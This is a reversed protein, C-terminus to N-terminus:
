EEGKPDKPLAHRGGWRNLTAIEDPTLVGLRYLQIHQPVDRDRPEPSDFLWWAWPRQGEAHGPVMSDRVQRWAEKKEWPSAFASEGAHGIWLEFFQQYSLDEWTRYRGLERRATSKKRTM